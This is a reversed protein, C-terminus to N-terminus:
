KAKKTEIEISYDSEIRLKHHIHLIRKTPMSGFSIFLKEKKKTM